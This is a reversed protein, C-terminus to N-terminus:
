HRKTSKCDIKLWLLAASKNATVTVLNENLINNNDTVENLVTELSDSKSKSCNLQSQLSWVLAVAENHAAIVGQLEKM